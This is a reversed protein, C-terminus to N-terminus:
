YGWITITGTDSSLDAVANSAGAGLLIINNVSDVAAPIIVNNTSDFFNGCGVFKKLGCAAATIKNTAGGVSVSTLKLRRIILGKKNLYFEAVSLETPQLSVQTALLDAM